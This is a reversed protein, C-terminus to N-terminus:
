LAVCAIASFSLVLFFIGQWISAREHCTTTEVRAEVNEPIDTVIGGFFYGSSNVSQSVQEEKLFLTELVSISLLKSPM